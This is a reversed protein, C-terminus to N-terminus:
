KILGFEEEAYHLNLLSNHRFKNLILNKYQKGWNDQALWQIKSWVTFASLIYKHKKM